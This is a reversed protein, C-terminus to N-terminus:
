AGNDARYYWIEEGTVVIKEGGERVTERKEDRKLPKRMDFGDMGDAYYDVVKRYVTYGLKKYLKIAPENDCRVFLDVFWAGQRECERELMKTLRTAHGNNRAHPAVTLATIHGHWPLYNQDPNTAPTWNRVRPYTSEEVKGLIYAEIRGDRGELVRCLQPWRNFYNIYYTLHFTETKEDLNCTNFRFLDSSEMSRVSCSM